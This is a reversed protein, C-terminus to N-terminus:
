NKLNKLEVEKRKIERLRRLEELRKNEELKKANATSLENEEANNSELSIEFILTDGPLIDPAM